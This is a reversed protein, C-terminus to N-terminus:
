RGPLPGDTHNCGGCGGLVKNICMKLKETDFPKVIAGKSGFKEFGAIVPDDSYGSAVIARVSPDVKIQESVVEKGGPLDM